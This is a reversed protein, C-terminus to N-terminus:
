ARTTKILPMIGHTMRSLIMVALANISLIQIGLKMIGLIITGRTIIAHKM